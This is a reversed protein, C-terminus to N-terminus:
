CGTCGGLYSIPGDGQAKFERFCSGSAKCPVREGRPFNPFLVGQQSVECGSCAGLSGETRTACGPRPRSPCLRIPPEGRPFNSSAAVHIGFSQDCAGERIHYLMTLKQSVPDVEAAAQLHRDPFFTFSYINNDKTQWINCVSDHCSWGSLHSSKTHDAVTCSPQCHLEQSVPQTWRRRLRRHWIHVFFSM